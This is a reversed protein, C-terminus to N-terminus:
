PRKEMDECYEPDKQLRPETILYMPFGEVTLPIVLEDLLAEIGRSSLLCCVKAACVSTSSAM